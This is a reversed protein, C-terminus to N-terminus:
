LIHWMVLVYLKVIPQIDFLFRDFPAGRELRAVIFESKMLSSDTERLQPCKQHLVSWVVRLCCYIEM